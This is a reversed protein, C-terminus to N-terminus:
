YQSGLNISSNPVYSYKNPNTQVLANAANNWLTGQAGTINNQVVSQDLLYNSFGVANQANITQRAEFDAEQQASQVEGAQIRATTNAGIQKVYGIYNQAEGEIQKNMAAIVPATAASVQAKLLATNQQFSALIAHATAREQDAYATPLDTIFLTIGYMGSPGPPTACVSAEVEYTGLGTPHSQGTVHVCRQGQAPVQETNSIQANASGGKGAIRRMQDLISPLAKGLDANYALIVAKSGNISGSRLLQQVFRNNPDEATLGLSLDIVEGHPGTLSITGGNCGPDVQWGAAVGVSATNDPLTYRTLAAPPAMENRSATTQASALVAAAPAAAPSSAGPHWIGSLQQLLPNVTTGFNSSRDYIMAGEAQGPGTAAAIAMGALPMNGEPRDTVTFFVGVYNTGKFQFVRGIQPKEGCLNHVKTLLKILVDTQSASGAAQGYVIIGGNTGKVTTLQTKAQPGTQCACICAMSFALVISFRAMVQMVDTVKGPEM